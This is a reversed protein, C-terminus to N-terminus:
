GLPTSTVTPRPTDTPLPTITPPAPLVTLQVIVFANVLEPDGFVWCGTESVVDVPCEILYWDRAANAGLIRVTAGYALTSIAPGYPFDYGPGSRINLGPGAVVVLIPEGPYFTATPTFGSPTETPTQTSTPPLPTATFTPSPLAPNPTASPSPTFTPTSPLSTDSPLVAVATPTDTEPDKGIIGNDTLLTILTTIAVILGTITTIIGPISKWFPQDDGNQSTKKAGSDKANGM